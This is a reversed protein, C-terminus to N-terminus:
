SENDPKVEPEPQKPNELARADRDVERKWVFLEKLGKKNKWLTKGHSERLKRLEQSIQEREKSAGQAGNNLCGVYICLYDVTKKLQKIRKHETWIPIYM